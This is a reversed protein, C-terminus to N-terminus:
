VLWELELDLLRAKTPAGTDRDWGCLEYYLRRADEFETVDLKEGQLPGNGLPEFFRRPLKDDDADLGERYNFVRYMAKAREALRLMEWLSTPWGTVASYFDVLQDLRIPGSPAAAFTCMGIVNYAGWLLQLVYFARVKRYSLDMRDVPEYLGLPGLSANSLGVTELLPDHPAEMHDAGTPSLAYSLALGKKGRPEHLPTEQGKVHMALSEAEAPLRKAARAVGEALLDGLGERKGIRHIMEVMAEANGFRLELGGTDADTILGREYCEMAFAIAVGTSITDLGYEGCTQNGKAVYELSDIGCLSGLSGITEYEPGGYKRTVGMEPVDVERKCAVACAYCTGRGVLITESMTQGSIKDAGDFAGDVFNRTPLIGDANLGPVGRATGHLHISSENRNYSTRLDKLIAQAREENVVVPKGTGRVGIARVNKSALVAGLGGRGNWHRLENTLAAFRVGKEAAPGCQLVRTRRDGSREVIADQVDGTSKGWLDGAPLVEIDGDRIMLYVPSPARGKLVLGDFGAAKLEPGWWGGAESRALGMTLPSKAAVVYRNAGWLPTGSMAGTMFVIINGPGLPDVGPTLERLLYYLALGGGGGYRRYVEAAPEDVTTAGSGLDVHLVRGTFGGFAREASTM